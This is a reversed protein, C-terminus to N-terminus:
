KKKLSLIEDIIKNIKDNKKNIKYKSNHEHLAKLEQPRLERAESLQMFAGPTSPETVIDWCIIQLDDKVYDISGHHHHNRKELSGVARSSIGPKGGAEIMSRVMDGKPNNLIQIKAMVNNGEIWIKKILHSVNDPEVITSDTHGLEGWACAGEVFVKIYNQIEPALIDKVYIRGNKNLTDFAQIISTLILPKTKDQLANIVDDDDKKYDLTTYERLLFLKEETKQTM